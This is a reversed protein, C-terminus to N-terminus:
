GLDEERADPDHDFHACHCGEVTCEGRAHDHEDRVHGCYCIDTDDLM